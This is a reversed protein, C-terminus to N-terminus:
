SIETANRRKPELSGRSLEQMLAMAARSGHTGLDTNLLLERVVEFTLRRPQGLEVLRDDMRRMEKFYRDEAAERYRYDLAILIYPTGDENLPHGLKSLHEALEVLLEGNGTEHEAALDFQRKLIEATLLPPPFILKLVSLPFPRSLVHQELRHKAWGQIHELPEQEIERLIRQVDPIIFREPLDGDLKKIAVKFVEWRHSRTDTLGLAEYCARAAGFNGSSTADELRQLWFNRLANGGLDKMMGIPLGTIRTSTDLVQILIERRDSLNGMLNYAEEFRDNLLHHDFREETDGHHRKHMELWKLPLSSGSSGHRGTHNECLQAYYLCVTPAHFGGEGLVATFAELIRDPDCRKSSVGNPELLLLKKRQEDTMDGYVRRFLDEERMESM